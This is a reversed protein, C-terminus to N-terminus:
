VIKKKINDVVFGCVIFEIMLYISFKFLAMGIYYTNLSYTTNYISLVFTAILCLSFCFKLGNKMIKYTIKELNKFSCFINKLIKKLM